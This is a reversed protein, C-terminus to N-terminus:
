IVPQTDRRARKAHQGPLSHFPYSTFPRSGGVTVQRDGGPPEHVASVNSSMVGIDRSNHVRAANRRIKARMTIKV